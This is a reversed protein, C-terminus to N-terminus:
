WTVNQLTPAAPAPRQAMRQDANAALAYCRNLEQHARAADQYATSSEDNFAKARDLHAALKDRLQALEGQGLNLGKLPPLATEAQQRTRTLLERFPTGGRQGAMRPDPSVAPTTEAPANEIRGYALRHATSFPDGQSLARYLNPAQLEGAVREGDAQWRGSASLTLMRQLANWDREYEDHNHAISGAQQPDMGAAYSKMAKEIAQAEPTDKLGEKLKEWQQVVQSQYNTFDSQVRPTIVRLTRAATTQQDHMRQIHQPTCATVAHAAPSLAALLLAIKM